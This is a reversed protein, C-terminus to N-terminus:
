FLDDAFILTETIKSCYAFSIKLCPLEHPGKCERSMKRENEYEKM